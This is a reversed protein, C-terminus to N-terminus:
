KVDVHVANGMGPTNAYSYNAKKFTYWRRVMATRLKKTATLVKSYFDIAKGYLHKSNPSSGELRDNKWKCRLGSTITISSGSDKRLYEINKLLQKDMVAPYGTCHGCTCRFEEPEFYKLDKCNVFNQVAIWTDNGGIGDKDKARTFAVKQFKLVAATYEPTVYSDIPGDFYGLTKLGTKIKKAYTNTTYKVKTSTTSKSEKFEVGLYKCCGQALAKGYADCEKVTDVLDLDAKIGGLEFIVAAMDTNKLEYLDRRASLGRTKIDIADLVANNMAQALKKGETSGPWYIPLTGSPAGSWDMHFAIHAKVKKSNSMQVQKVMNKNNGDFADTYVTVGSTRMYNVFAQTVLIVRGAETWSKYVAGPDWTGDTSRGHGAWASIAPKSM